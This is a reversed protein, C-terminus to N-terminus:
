FDLFNRRKIGVGFAKVNRKIKWEELRVGNPYNDRPM